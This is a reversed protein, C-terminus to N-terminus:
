FLSQSRNPVLLKTENKSRKSNRRSRRSRRSRRKSKKKTKKTKKKSFRRPFLGKVNSGFFTSSYIEPSAQMWQGGMPPGSAPSYGLGPKYNLPVKLGSSLTTM